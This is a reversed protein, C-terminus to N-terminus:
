DCRHHPTADCSGGRNVRILAPPAVAPLIAGAVRRRRAGVPPFASSCKSGLGPRCRTRAQGFSSDSARSARSRGSRWRVSREAEEHPAVHEEHRRDQEAVVRHPRDRLHELTVEEEPLGVGHDHRADNRNHENQEDGMGPERHALKRDVIRLVADVAVVHPHHMVLVGRQPPPLDDGTERHEEEGRHVQILHQHVGSHDAREFRSVPHPASAPPRQVQHQQEADLQVAADAQVAKRDLPAPEGALIGIRRAAVQLLELPRQRHEEDHEAQHSQGGVHLDAVCM